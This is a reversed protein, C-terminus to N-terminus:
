RKRQIWPRDRKGQKTVTNRLERLCVCQEFFGVNIKGKQSERANFIRGEM